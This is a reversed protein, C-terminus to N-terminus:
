ADRRHPRSGGFTQRDASLQLAARLQEQDDLAAAAHSGRHPDIGIVFMAEEEDHNTHWPPCVQHPPSASGTALWATVLVRGAARENLLWVKFGAPCELSWRGLGGVSHATGWM